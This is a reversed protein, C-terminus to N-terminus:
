PSTTTATTSPSRERFRRSRDPSTGRRDNALADKGAKAAASSLSARIQPTTVQFRCRSRVRHGSANEGEDVAIRKVAGALPHEIAPKRLPRDDHQGVVVAAGDGAGGLGLREPDAHARRIEHDAIQAPAFADGHERRVVGEIAVHGGAHVLHIAREARVDLDVRDVLAEEVQGAERAAVQDGIGAVQALRDPSPDADRGADPDAAGLGEGLERVVDRLADRLQM